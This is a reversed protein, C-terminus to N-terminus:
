IKKQILNFDGLITFFIQYVFMNDSLEPHFTAALIGGKRILVPNGKQTALITILNDNVRDIIPARIFIGDIIPSHSSDSTLDISFVGSALQSGYGNRTISLDLVGLTSLIILGACTALVPVQLVKQKLDEWLNAKKLLQTIVTSEGGPLILANIEKLDKKTRVLVSDYGYSLIKRQHVLYAGQLALVGIKEM